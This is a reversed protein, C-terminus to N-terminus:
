AIKFVKYDSFTLSIFEQPWEFGVLEGGEIEGARERERERERERKRKLDLILRV